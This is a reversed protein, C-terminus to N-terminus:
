PGRWEPTGGSRRPSSVFAAPSSGCTRTSSSCCTRGPSRRGQNAARAFGRNEANRVFRANGAGDAAREVSGDRSANDVVVIESVERQSACSELCGRLDDGGNYNIIIATVM